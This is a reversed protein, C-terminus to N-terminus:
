TALAIVRLDQIVPVKASNTSRFVIKLQYTTFPTLTGNLGGVLYRYERFINPNEDSPVSNEPNVLTYNVDRINTGEDATRFYVQFDAVSPKNAAILVRLGVVTEALSIPTTVHKALHSGGDADTENVFILPTNFGATDRDSDQKDVLNGFLSLSTRQMDIVPSVDASNTTLRLNITASKAGINVTQVVSHGVLKPVSAINNTNIALSSFTTDKVFRTETGALSKGSTFKGFASLRTGTSPILTQVNPSLSDFMINRTAEVNAGGTVISSTASSDAYVKYGYMDPQGVIRNGTISTGLIGAFSSASDIGSFNVIDGSDFGHYPHSVTFINSGSDFNFPDQVLARRPVDANELIVEAEMHLFNAKFLRFTMDKTQDASWTRGNQSKFLSGLLPQRTIRKETSGIIFEGPEAVYVTYDITDSLLCIAYEVGGALYVPEEFVFDTGNALMSAETESPVVTVQNPTLVRLGGPVATNASPHGNVMPRLECAVPAPNAGGAVDPKSAFYVRAKTLFIGGTEAVFFSQALPDKGGGGGRNTVQRKYM